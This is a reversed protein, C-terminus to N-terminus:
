QWRQRSNAHSITVPWPARLCLVDWYIRIRSTGNIVAERLMPNHVFPRRVKGNADREPDMRHRNPPSILALTCAPSVGTGANM